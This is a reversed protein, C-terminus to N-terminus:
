LSAVRPHLEVSATKGQLVPLVKEVFLRNMELAQEYVNKGVLVGDTVYIIRGSNETIRMTYYQEWHEDFYFLIAKKTNNGFSIQITADANSEVFRVNTSSMVKARFVDLNIGGHITADKGSGVAGLDQDVYIRSIAGASRPEIPHFSMTSSACGGLLTVASLALGLNRTSFQYKSM